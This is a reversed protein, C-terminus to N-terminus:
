VLWTNVIWGSSFVVAGAIIAKGVTSWSGGHWEFIAMVATLAIGFIVISIGFPGVIFAALKQAFAELGGM